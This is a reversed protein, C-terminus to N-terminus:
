FNELKNHDVCNFGKAYDTFCFYTNKSSNEQKKSSGISTLLKIWPEEAKELDLKYLQFNVTWTSNFSPKSSKSCSRALMHFSHYQSTTQVNKPMARRQSQFSFQVKELGIAVASKELNESM